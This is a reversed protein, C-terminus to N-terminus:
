FTLLIYKLHHVESSYVNFNLCWKQSTISTNEWELAAACAPATPPLWPAFTVFTRCRLTWRLEGVHKRSFSLGIGLACTVSKVSITQIRKCVWHFGLCENQCVDWVWREKLSNVGFATLNTAIQGFAATQLRCTVYWFPNLIPEFLVEVMYPGPDQGVQMQKRIAWFQELWKWSGAKFCRRCVPRPHCSVPGSLAWPVSLIGCLRYIMIYRDLERWM